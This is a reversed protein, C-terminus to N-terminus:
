MTKYLENVQERSVDQMVARLKEIDADTLDASAVQINYVPAFNLKQNQNNTTSVAKPDTGVLNRNYGLQSNITNLDGMLAKANALEDNMEKIASATTQFGTTTDSLYGATADNLDYVTGMVNIMGTRLANDIVKNINEPKLYDELEKDINDIKSELMADYAEFQNDKITTNMEKMLDEYEKQLEKLKKKGSATGDLEYMNIQSKLEALKARKDAMDEDKSEEERLKKISERTEEYPKKMNEANKEAYHEIVNAISQEASEIGESMTKYVEKITNSLESYQNDIDPITTYCLQAYKETADALKKVNEQAKKKAEAEAESSDKMANAQDTLQKLRAQYNQIEWGNFQFGNRALLQRQEQLEQMAVNKKDMLRKQQLKYLNIEENLVNRYDKGTARKKLAENTELSTNVRQLANDVAFYKDRLDELDEVSYDKESDKKSSSGKSTDGFGVSNGGATTAGASVISGSKVNNAGASVSDYSKNVSPNLIKRLNSDLFGFGKDALYKIQADNGVVGIENLYQQTARLKASLASNHNKLDAKYANNNSNTINPEVNARYQGAENTASTKSNQVNANNVDDTKLNKANNTTVNAETKARNNASANTVKQKDVEVNEHNKRDIQYNKSHTDITNAVVRRIANQTSVTVDEKAMQAQYYSQLEAENGEQQLRELESQQQANAIIANKQENMTNAMNDRMSTLKEEFTDINGLASILENNGSSFISEMTDQGIYGFEAFEELAKNMLDLQNSNKSFEDSLNKASSTLDDLQGQAYESAQGLLDIGETADQSTTAINAMSTQLETMDLLPYAEYVQDGYVNALQRVAENYKAVNARHKSLSADAELIKKRYDKLQEVANEAYSDNIGYESGNEKRKALNSQIENIRSNYEKILEIQKKAEELSTNAGEESDQVAKMAEAKMTDQKVQLLQKNLELNQALGENQDTYATASGELAGAIQKEVNLLEARIRVREEETKFGTNLENILREQKKIAESTDDLTKKGEGLITFVNNLNAEMTEIAEANEEATNTLAKFASVVGVLVSAIAFIPHTSLIIKLATLAGGLTTVSGTAVGASTALSAIATVLKVRLTNGLSVMLAGVIIVIAKTKTLWSVLSALGGILNKTFTSNVFVNVMQLSAEKLQNIKATTSDLYVEYEANVSGTAQGSMLKNYVDALREANSLIANGVNAQQKGFLKESITAQTMSDLQNYVEGIKSLVEYTSKFEGNADTLDVGTLRKILPALKADLEEGDEATGRLRMALTKLGNGVKEANQNVEQAVTGMAISQEISNGAMSLTASSRQLISAIDQAKVAYNNATYNMKDTVDIMQEVEFNYGRMISILDTTAEEMNNIDGALNFKTTLEAMSQAQEVTKIGMKKWSTTADIIAKSTTGMEYAVNSVEKRFDELGEKTLDSVRNLSILADEIEIIGSIGERVQSMARMMLASVSFYMAFSQAMQQITTKNKQIQKASAVLASKERNLGSVVEKIRTKEVQGLAVNSAKLNEMSNIQEQIKRNVETISNSSKGTDELSQKYQKLKLIQSDLFKETSALQRAYTANGQASNADQVAKNYLKQVELVEAIKVKINNASVIEGKAMRDRVAELEMIANKFNNYEQAVAQEAGGLSQLNKNGLELKANYRGIANELNAFGTENKTLAKIRNDLLSIQNQAEKINSLNISNLRNNLDDIVSSDVFKNRSLDGIKTGLQTQMEKIKSVQAVIDNTQKNLADRTATIRNKEESSLIANESILKEYKEILTNLENIKQTSDGSNVGDLRSKYEQLKIIAKDLFNASNNIQTSRKSEISISNNVADNLAKQTQTAINTQQTILKSSISEGDILQKRMKVLKSLEAELVKYETLASAGGSMKSNSQELAYRIKQISNELRVIGAEGSSLNNIAETIQKIEEKAKTLNNPDINNLQKSLNKIVQTDILKNDKLGNIKTELSQKSENLKQTQKIIENTQNKIGDITNNIRTKEEQGLTANAMKLSEYKAILKDIEMGQFESNMTGLNADSLQKRYKELKLIIGELYNSTNKIETSRKTEANVSDTVAVTLEKQAQTASNLQRTIVENSVNTGKTMQSRLDILRQLEVEIQKYQSLASADGGIGKMKQTAQSMAYELKQIGNEVTVIGKQGSGLNAIATQLKGLQEQAKKVNTSDISNLETKLKEIVTPDVIDNGKMTNLKGSLSEKMDVLGQKLKAVKEIYDNAIVGLTQFVRKTEGEVETIVEKWGMTEKVINGVEDKYTLTAGTLIGTNPDQKMTMSVLEKMNSKLENIRANLEAYGKTMNSIGSGAGNINEAEKNFAQVSEKGKKIGEDINVSGAKKQLEDLQKKIDNISKDVKVNDITVSVKIDGIQKAIKARMDAVGTLKVDSITIKLKTINNLQAQLEKRMETVSLLKVGTSVTLM